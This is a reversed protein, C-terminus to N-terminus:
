EDLRFIVDDAGAVIGDMESTKPERPNELDTWRRARLKYTGPPVGRMEFKGNPDSVWTSAVVKGAADLAELSVATVPKDDPGLVTGAITKGEVAIIRVSNQDPPLQIADGQIYGRGSELLRVTLEVNEFGGVRFRGDAGTTAARWPPSIQVNAGAVPRGGGDVVIGEVVRGVELDFAQESASAAAGEVVLTKYDNHRITLKFPQGPPLRGLTFRGDAGTQEWSNTAGEVQANIQAGSVLQGNARVVGRLEGAKVMVIRLDAAGAAVSVSSAFLGERSVSIRFTGPALGFFGFKGVGDSQDQAGGRGMTQPAPQNAAAEQVANATVRADVVPKGDEDVVVGTITLGRELSVVGVDHRAGSGLEIPENRPLFHPHVYEITWTGRPANRLVFRGEDDTIGPRPMGAGSAGPFRQRGRNPQESLEVRAGQVPQGSEDRVMGVVDLPATLVLTARASAEVDLPKSPGFDGHTAVLTVKKGREIPKLEFSGDDRSYAIPAGGLFMTMFMMNRDLQLTVKAGPVPDGKPNTVVGRVIAGPTLLVDKEIERKGEPFLAEAQAAGGMGRFLMPNASADVIFDPHRGFLANAKLPVGRLEFKGEEDSRVVGGGMMALQQELGGLAQVIAGAVPESTEKNRVVGRVIGGREMEITGLDMVGDGIEADGLQKLQPVFEDATLIAMKQRGRSGQTTPLHEIVVRGDHDSKGRAFGEGFVVAVSVDPAPRGPMSADMTRLKLTVGRELVVEVGNAPVQIRPNIRAAYGPARATLIVGGMGSSGLGAPAALLFRGQGDAIGEVKPAGGSFIAMMDAVFVHACAIPRGEEDVVRGEVFAAPFLHFDVGAVDRVIERAAEHEQGHRPSYARLAYTGAGPLLLEYAGQADSRTSAVLDDPEGIRRFIDSFDVRNMGAKGRVAEVTAGAIPAGQADLVHGRVALAKSLRIVEEGTEEDLDVNLAGVADDLRAQISYLGPEIGALTLAGKDDATASTAGGMPDRIRLVAGGAPQGDTALVAIALSLEGRALDTATAAGKAEPETRARDERELRRSSEGDRRVGQHGADESQLLFYALAGVAITAAVMIWHVPKM